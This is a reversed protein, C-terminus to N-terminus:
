SKQKTHEHDKKLQIVQQQLQQASVQEAPIAPGINLTIRAWLKRPRRDILHKDKRSFLSGWLGSLAMPIVNVPDTAIMKEIGPKFDHIEGDATISGEPFVCIIDGQQLGEHIDEYAKVLLEANEKRPAISISKVSRFVWSLIPIAFIKHYMVFRVPRRISGLIILADVFSVHNCVVIAAGQQPIEELGKVRVRYILHILVWTIFRMLFEPVLTYIYIAVVINLIATVAFLQPISAGNGLLLMALLASAVMFFSNLINNGAIIRAIHEKSGREQILAYLPVIYFGGFVGLLFLDIFVRLLQPHHIFESLTSLSMAPLHPSAFFLDLGFISLGISGLPVLGIEVQQHSLKECAFSGIAIGISFLALLVGVSSEGGGLYLKSFQ